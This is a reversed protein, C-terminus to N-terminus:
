RNSSKKTQRAMLRFRWHERDARWAYRRDTIAVAGFTASTKGTARPAIVIRSQHRGRSRVRMREGAGDVFPRFQQRFHRRKFRLKMAEAFCQEGAPLRLDSSRR